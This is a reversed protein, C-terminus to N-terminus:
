KKTKVSYFGGTSSRYDYKQMIKVSYLKGTLPRYYYEKLDYVAHLKLTIKYIENKLVNWVFTFVVM